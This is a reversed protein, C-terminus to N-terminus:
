TLHEYGYQSIDLLSGDVKELFIGRGYSVEGIM